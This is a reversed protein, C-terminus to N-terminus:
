EVVESDFEIELDAKAFLDCIIQEAEEQSYAKAAVRMVVPFTFWKPEPDPEIYYPSAPNM